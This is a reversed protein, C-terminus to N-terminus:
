KAVWEQDHPLLRELLEAWLDDFSDLVDQPCTSDLGIALDCMSEPENPEPVFVSFLTIVSDDLLVSWIWVVPGYLQDPDDLYSGRLHVIRYDGFLDGNEDEYQNLLSELFPDLDDEPDFYTASLGLGDGFVSKGSITGNEGYYNGGTLQGNRYNDINELAGNEYYEESPGDRVGNSYFASSVLQGNDDYVELPGDLVGNSYSQRAALQNNLHYHLYPGDREGDRLFGSESVKSTDDIMFSFVPGTYPTMTERDLFLDGQQVLTDLNVSVQEQEACGVAVLAVALMLIKKM